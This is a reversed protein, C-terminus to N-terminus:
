FLMQQWRIFPRREGQLNTHCVEVVAHLYYMMHRIRQCKTAPPAPAAPPLLKVVKWLGYVGGAAACRTGGVGNNEM